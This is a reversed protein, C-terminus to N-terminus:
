SVGGSPPLGDVFGVLDALRQRNVRYYIWPGHRDTTVLDADRLVKLHYSITPQSLNFAAEVECACLPADHEALLRIIQVRTADGLARFLQAYEEARERPLPLRPPACCAPNLIELRRFVKM